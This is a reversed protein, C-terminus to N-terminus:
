KIGQYEPPAEFATVQCWSGVRLRMTMKSIQEAAELDAM